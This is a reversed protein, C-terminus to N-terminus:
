FKNVPLLLAGSAWTNHVPIGATRFRATWKEAKLAPVQGDIVITIGPKLLPLFSEPDKISAPLVLYHPHHTLSAPIEVQDLPFAIRIKGFQIVRAQLHSFQRSRSWRFAQLIPDPVPGPLANITYVTDSNIAMWGQRGTIHLDLLLPQSKRHYIEFTRLGTFALLASLALLLGNRNKHLWWWSIGAILFYMIMTQPFSWELGNIVAGPLANIKRIVLNMLDIMWGAITGPIKIPIGIAYLLWQLLSAVLALSSLPVALLNALLFYVPAQHFQGISIPLTLIQAALTAACLSWINRLLPHQWEMWTSVPKQYLVISLLAAFSLLLGIDWLWNPQYCLLLFAGIGISQLADQPKRLLKALMVMSFMFAARMISGAGGAVGSFWWAILVILIAKTWQLSKRRSPLILIKELLLFILALHMGSVAIVHVVGTNSYAQLLSKDLEARYGIVLAMALAQASPRITNRIAELASQQSKALIRDLNTLPASQLKVAETETLFAQHRIGQRAAFLAYDFSGPNHTTPISKISATSILWTDGPQWSGSQQLPMYLLIRGESQHTKGSPEIRATITFPARCTKNSPTPLADPSGILAVTNQLHHGIWHPSHAPNNNQHLLMGLILIALHIILGGLWRLSYSLRFLCTALLAFMGFVFITNLWAPPIDGLADSFFIGLVLPPLLRLFPAKHWFPVLNKM